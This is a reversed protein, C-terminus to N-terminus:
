NNMDKYVKQAYVDASRSAKVILALMHARQAVNAFYFVATSMKRVHFDSPSGANLKQASCQAARAMQWGALVTGCLMLYPVSAFYAASESAQAKILIDELASEYVLVSDSLGQGIFSLAEGQEGTKGAATKLEEATRRMKDALRRAVEGGNRLTKRALFDNAQIATTGEYIPLIRADRYYQAAGTEEIYGMGGIVQVAM